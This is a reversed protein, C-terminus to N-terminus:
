MDSCVRLAGFTSAGLIELYDYLFTAIIDAGGGKDRGVPSGLPLLYLLGMVPTSLGM